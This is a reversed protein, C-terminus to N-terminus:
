GRPLLAGSQLQRRRVTQRICLRDIAAHRPELRVLAVGIDRRNDFVEGTQCMVAWHTHAPAIAEVQRPPKESAVPKSNRRGAGAQGQKPDRTPQPNMLVLASLLAELLEAAGLGGKDSATCAPSLLWVIPLM